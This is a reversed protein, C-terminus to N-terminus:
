TLSYVSPMGITDEDATRQRKSPSAVVDAAADAAAIAAAEEMVEQEMAAAAADAADNLNALEEREEDVTRTTVYDTMTQAGEAWVSTFNRLLERRSRRARDLSPFFGPQLKRLKSVNKANLGSMVLSFTALAPRHEADLKKKFIKHLKPNALLEDSLKGNFLHLDVSLGRVGLSREMEEILWAQWADIGGGLTDMVLQALGRAALRKRRATSAGADGSRVPVYPSAGQGSSRLLSSSNTPTVLLASSTVARRLPAM